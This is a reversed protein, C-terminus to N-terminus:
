VSFSAPLNTGSRRKKFSFGKYSTFALPRCSLKLKNRHSEVKCAILVLHIFNKSQKDLSICLNSKKSFPKLITKGDCKTYTKKLYINKM